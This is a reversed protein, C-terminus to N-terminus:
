AVTVLINGSALVELSGAPGVVLTSEPEEVIAPGALRTGAGLAARDYVARTAEDPQRCSSPGISSICRIM